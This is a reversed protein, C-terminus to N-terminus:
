ILKERREVSSIVDGLALGLTSEVEFLDSFLFSFTMWKLSGGVSSVILCASTQRKKKNEKDRRIKYITYKFKGWKSGYTNM